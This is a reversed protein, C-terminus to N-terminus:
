VRAQPSRRHWWGPESLTQIEQGRDIPCADLLRLASKRGGAITILRALSPVANLLFGLLGLLQDVPPVIGEHVLKSRSDYATRLQRFLRDRDDAQYGLLHCGRLALRLSLEARADGLLAEYAISAHLFSTVADSALSQLAEYLYRVALHLQHEQSQDPFHDITQRWRELSAEDLWYCDGRMAPLLAAAPQPMKYPSAGGSHKPPPYAFWENGVNSQWRWEGPSKLYVDVVPEPWEPVAGTSVALLALAQYILAAGTDYAEEPPQGVNDILVEVRHAPLDDYEDLGLAGHVRKAEEATLSALVVNSSLVVRGHQPLRMGFIPTRCRYEGDCPQDLSM